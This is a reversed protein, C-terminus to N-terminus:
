TLAVAGLSRKGNNNEVVGKFVARRSPPLAGKQSAKRPGSPRRRLPAGRGQSSFLSVMLPYRKMLLGGSISKSLLKAHPMRQNMRNRGCTCPSMSKSNSSAAMTERERERACVCVCVREREEVCVRVRERVRYRSKREAM